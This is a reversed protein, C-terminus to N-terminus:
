RADRRWGGEKKTEAEAKLDLVRGGTNSILASEVDRHLSLHINRAGESQKLVTCRVENRWDGEKEWLVVALRAMREIGAAEAFSQMTPPGGSKGAERNTHIVVIIPTHTTFALDRLRRFTNEVRLRMDDGRNVAEHQIELGHDVFIARVKRVSIWRKCKAILESTTIGGRKHTYLQGLQEYLEGAHRQVDDERDTPREKGIWKVPMGVRRALLRKFVWKTGDELGFLGINHGAAIANYVAPAVLASKGISPQGGILNLNEEWGMVHEDLIQIGTPLYPKRVGKMAADWEEMVEMVDDRGTTEVEAAGSYTRAFDDVVTGLNAPDAAPSELKALVSLAFAEVQRLKSLRRLETALTALSPRNCVNAGQLAALREHGNAPVGQQGRVVAWVTQPDVTRERDVLARIGVFYAAPEKTAFDEAVLGTDDILRAAGVKLSAGDGDLLAGIVAAETEANVHRAAVPVRGGDVKRLSLGNVNTQPANM